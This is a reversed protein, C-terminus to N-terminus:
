GARCREHQGRRPIWKLGREIGSSAAPTGKATLRDLQRKLKRNEKILEDVMSTLSAVADSATGARRRTTTTSRAAAGRTTRTTRTGTSRRARRKPAPSSESAEAM